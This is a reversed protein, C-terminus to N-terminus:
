AHRAYRPKKALEKMKNSISEKHTASKFKGLGNEIAKKSLVFKVEDSLPLRNSNYETTKLSQSYKEVRRDSLKNLGANWSPKGRQPNNSIMRESLQKRVEESHTKGYFTGNKGTLIGNEGYLRNKIKDYEIANIYRNHKEHKRSMMLFARCMKVYAMGTNRYMEMLLRHCIYHEKPTLLVLNDKDNSGGLSAPIIHHKEFYQITKSRGDLKAHNIISYYIKTYDM